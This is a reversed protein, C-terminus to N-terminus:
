LEHQKNVVVRIKVGRREIVESEAECVMFNMKLCQRGRLARCGIEAIMLDANENLEVEQNPITVDSKPRTCVAGEVAFRQGDRSLSSIMPIKIDPKRDM